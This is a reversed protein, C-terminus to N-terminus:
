PSLALLKQAYGAAQKENGADRSFAVLASLIDRDHPHAKHAGQLVIIARGLQTLQVGGLEGRLISALIRAAEIRVARIPDTLLPWALQVRLNASVVELASLTASRVVPNDDAVGAVLVDVNDRRLYRGIGALATARAIDPAEADRIM